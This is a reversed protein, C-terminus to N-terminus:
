SFICSKSKERPKRENLSSHFTITKSELSACHQSGTKSKEGGEGKWWDCDLHDLLHHWRLGGM